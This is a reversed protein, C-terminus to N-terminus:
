PKKEFHGQGGRLMEDWTKKNGYGYKEALDSALLMMAIAQKEQLSGQGYSIVEWAHGLLSQKMNAVENLKAQISRWANEDAEDNKAIQHLLDNLVAASERYLANAIGAEVLSIALGL